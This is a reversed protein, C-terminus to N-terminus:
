DPAVALRAQPFRTLFQGIAVQAQLRALPAGICFHIGHGFALHLNPDRDMRFETPEAFVSGDRNAALLSVMVLDGAAVEAGFLDLPRTAIRLSAVPVPSEYRLFEEIAAALEQPHARIRDARDPHRLLLHIGNGILNTTTEHGAIVFLFATSTLEDESLRDTEDRAAVLASLLGDDPEARRRTVLGRLHEVFDTVERVPFVPSGLGATFANAWDRYNDRDEAPVGLLECIVQIPLPFAYQTVLNAVPGGAALRDLLDGVLQQVRPRLTEIRRPVFAAAVLRRLRTHDPPDVRLMGSSMAARVRPSLAGRDLSDGQDRNSLRPDSLVARVETYGTVLWVPVGNPLQVRHIPLADHLSLTYIETTATDNFFFFICAPLKNFYM